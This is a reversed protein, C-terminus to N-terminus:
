APGGRLGRISISVTVIAIGISFLTIGFGYYFLRPIYRMTFINQGKHAMFSIFIKQYKELQIRKGDLFAEWEPYFMESLFVRSEEPLSFKVTMENPNANFRQSFIPLGTDCSYVASLAGEYQYIFIRRSQPFITPPVFKSQGFYEIKRSNNVFYTSASEPEQAISVLKWESAEFLRSSLAYRVNLHRLMQADYDSFVEDERVNSVEHSVTRRADSSDVGEDMEDYYDRFGRSYVEDLGKIIPINYVMTINPPLTNVLPLVREGPKILKRLQSVVSPKYEYIESSCFRVFPVKAMFLELFVISIALIALTNIKAPNKSCFFFWISILLAVFATRILVIGWADIIRSLRKIYEQTTYPHNTETSIKKILYERARSAIANKNTLYGGAIMVLGIACIAMVHAFRKTAINGKRINLLRDFSLGALVSLAFSYLYLARAPGRLMRLGPVLYLMANYFINRDGTVMLLVIIAQFLFIKKYISVPRRLGFLIICLSFLGIYGVSGINSWGYLSFQTGSASAGFFDPILFQIYSGWSLTSGPFFMDQHNLGQGRFSIHALELSQILQISSLGIALLFCLFFGRSLSIFHKLKRTRVAEYISRAVYFYVFCGYTFFSTMTHGSLFQVALSLACLVSWVEKGTSIRKEAFLLVLPLWIEAHKPTTGGMNSFMASGGFMFLVASLLAAARSQKLVRIFAYMFIGSLFAHIVLDFVLFHRPTMIFAFLKLPYFFAYSVNAMFPFGSFLWPNWFWLEGRHAMEHMKFIIPYYFTNLDHSIFTKGFFIIERFYLSLMAAFSFAIILTIKKNWSSIMYLLRMAPSIM